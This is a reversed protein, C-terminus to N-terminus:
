VSSEIAIIRRQKRRPYQPVKDNAIKSKKERVYTICRPSSIPFSNSREKGGELRKYGQNKGDLTENSEKSHGIVPLSSGNSQLDKDFQQGSSIESKSTAKSPTVLTEM